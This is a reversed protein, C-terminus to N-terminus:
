SSAMAKKSYFSACLRNNLSLRLFSFVSSVFCSCVNPSGM